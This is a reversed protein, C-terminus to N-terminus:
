GISEHACAVRKSSRWCGRCWIVASRSNSAQGNLRLSDLSATCSCTSVCHQLVTAGAGQKTPQWHCSSWLFHYFWWSHRLLLPRNVTKLSEPLFWHSWKVLYLITFMSNCEQFWLSEQPELYHNSNNKIIGFSESKPKHWESRAGM